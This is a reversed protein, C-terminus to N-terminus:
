GSSKASTSEAALLQKLLEERSQVLTLDAGGEVLKNTELVDFMAEGIERDKYIEQLAAGVIQPRMAAARAFEM